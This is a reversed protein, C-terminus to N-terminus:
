ARHHPAASAFGTRELINFVIAIIFLRAAYGSFLLSEKVEAFALVVVFSYAFFRDINRSSYYLRFVLFYFIGGFLYGVSLFMRAYGSDTWPSFDSGGYFGYGFLASYFDNPLVSLFEALLAVTGEDQFGEKGEFIFGFSYFLFNDGFRDSLFNVGFSQFLFFLFVALLLVLVFSMVTKLNLSRGNILFYMAVPIASFILGTRGIVTVSFMLISFAAVLFLTGIEKKGYLYLALILGAPIIISLNAGGASAIGRFRYGEAYNISGNELPDLFAEIGLRLGDFFLELIIISSNFLVILLLMKVILDFSVGNRHSIMWIGQVALVIVILSVVSLVHNFQLIGNVLSSLLGVIAVFFMLVLPTLIKRWVVTKIGNLCAYFAFLFAILQGPKGYVTYPNLIILLLSVFIFIAVSTSIKRQTVPM